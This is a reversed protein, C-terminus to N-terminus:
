ENRVEWNGGCLGQGRSRHRGAGLRRRGGAPPGRRGRVAQAENDDLGFGDDDTQVAFPSGRTALNSVMGTALVVLDAEAELLQGSEVDEM